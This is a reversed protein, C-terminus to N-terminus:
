FVGRGDETLTSFVFRGKEDIDGFVSKGDETLEEEFSLAKWGTGVEREIDKWAGAGSARILSKWDGM